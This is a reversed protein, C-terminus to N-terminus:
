TRVSSSRPSIRSRTPRMSSSRTPLAPAPGRLRGREPGSGGAASPPQRDGCGGRPGRPPGAVVHCRNFHSCRNGLCNERTSTIQPWLPHSDALGRIEALDGGRTTRAWRQVRALMSRTSRSRGGDPEISLQELGVELQELRQRCLYNSRGKLLAVRAPRGWHPAWCRCTGQQVASGAAHAYRDLHARPLGSLLAPVLYAFTKGTGTGAEVVLHDRGALAEAVRAAMHRQERRVRFDPLARALPGAAGFIDELDLM